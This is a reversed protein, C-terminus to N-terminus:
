SSSFLNKLTEVLNGAAIVNSESEKLAEMEKMQKGLPSHQEVMDYEIDMAQANGEAERVRADAEYGAIKEQLTADRIDEPPDLNRIKIGKIRVGYEEEFEQVLGNEVITAFIDKSLDVKQKTLAKWNETTLANRVETRILGIVFELWNDVEFKAKKPNVIRTPMDVEAGLPLLGEEEAETVQFYYKKRKLLMHDLTENQHKEVEGGPTVSTWSFTYTMVDILPHLWGYFRLGGLLHEDQQERTINPDNPDIEEYVTIVKDADSPSQPENGDKTVAKLFPEYLSGQNNRTLELIKEETRKGVGKINRSLRGHDAQQQLTEMDKIGQNELKSKLREAKEYSFREMEALDEATIPLEQNVEQYEKLVKGDKTPEGVPVVNYDKDFTYGKWQMLIDYLQDGKVIFKASGEKVFTFWRNDPALKYFVLPPLIALTAGGIELGMWLPGTFKFTLAFGLFLGAGLAYKWAGSSSLLALSVGVLAFLSGIIWLNLGMFLSAILATEMLAVFIGSSWGQQEEQEESM